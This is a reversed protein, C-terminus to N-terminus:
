IARFLYFSFTTILAPILAGILLGTASIGGHFYKGLIAQGSPNPANAIVTLGGGTVAGALVSYKMTDSFQPILTALFTIEANDNFSTLFMSLFLLTGESVSSLLPEIWWGQLSGHIVLGALFFGVLIPTRLSLHSQYPRTAQYFGIFLLFSGIFIIPHHANVVTWAMFLVHMVNIWLPTSLDNKDRLENERHHLQRKQEMENFEKRFVFFYLSTSLLMGLLSKWGFHFFMYPTDWEWVQSVMLVPPAAFNTFVGGVSINTFLLGLTAYGLKTSPKHDYFQKALLVASITMAGPETILSGSLPGLILLVWWWSRITGGSLKAVFQCCDEALTIIPKTSALTMIVVVFIPEIYSRTEIYHVASQWNYFYTIAAMLPIVWIGFVVEVEGLFRLVEVDFTDVIRKKEQINKERRNQSWLTFQHAFFTHLIALVFIILAVLNFPQLHLRYDLINVAGQLHDDGYGEVDIILPSQQPFCNLEGCITSILYSFGFVLVAYFLLLYYSRKM